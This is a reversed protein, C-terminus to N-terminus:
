AELIFCLIKNTKEMVAGIEFYRACLILVTKASCKVMDLKINAM